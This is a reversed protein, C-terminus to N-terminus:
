TYYQISSPALFESQNNVARYALFLKRRGTMRSSALRACALASQNHEQIKSSGVVM